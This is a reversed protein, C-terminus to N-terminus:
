SGVIGGTEVPVVKPTQTLIAHLQRESTRASKEAAKISRASDERLKHTEWALWGTVIALAGTFLVLWFEWEQYFLKEPSIWHVVVSPVPPWSLQM